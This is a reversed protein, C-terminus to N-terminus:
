ERELEYAVRVNDLWCRATVEVRVLVVTLHSPSPERAVEFAREGDLRYAIARTSLGIEVRHWAQDPAREAAQEEKRDRAVSARDRQLVLANDHIARETAGNPHETLQVRVFTESGSSSPDCYADLALTFGRDLDVDHADFTLTGDSLSPAPNGMAADYTGSSASFEYWKGRPGLPEGTFTVDISELESKCSTALALCLIFLVTRASLVRM